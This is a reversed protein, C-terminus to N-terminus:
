PKQVTRYSRTLPPTIHVYRGVIDIQVTGNSEDIRFADPLRTMTINFEYGSDDGNELPYIINFRNKQRDERSAPDAQYGESLRLLAYEVSSKTYFELQKNVHDHSVYEISTAAFQMSMAGVTAILVVVIIAFIMAFGSRMRM